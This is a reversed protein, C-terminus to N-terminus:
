NQKDKKGGNQQRVFLVFEFVHLQPLDKHTEFNDIELHRM